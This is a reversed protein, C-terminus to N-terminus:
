SSSWTEMLEVSPTLLPFILQSVSSLFISCCCFCSQYEKGHCLIDEGKGSLIVQLFSGSFLFLLALKERQENVTSWQKVETDTMQPETGSDEKGGSRSLHVLGHSNQKAPMQQHRVFTALHMPVATQSVYGLGVLCSPLLQTVAPNHEIISYHM